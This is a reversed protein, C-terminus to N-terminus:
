KKVQPQGFLGWPRLMLLLAMVVFAVATRYTSPFIQTALEEAVGLILAGAAAGAPNGIGGLIAAAFVIIVYNWGMLPDVVTDLGILVGAVATIAGTIAWTWALIRERSIGRAAALTPNDAIARMARGLPTRKLLLQLAILCALATLASTVQVQNIRVDLVRFPRSIEVAFNRVTNSFVIRVVNELLFALGMSAVLLTISSRERLPRFVLRDSGVAIGAMLAAGVVTAGWLPFGLTVNFVYTIYAGVTLMAGIAFNPFRLIGFVLSLAVAPLAVVTGTVLGNFTTQVIEM